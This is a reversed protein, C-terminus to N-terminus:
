RSTRSKRRSRRYPPLAKHPKRKEQARKELELRWRAPRPDEPWRESLADLLKFIRPLVHKKFWFSPLEREVLPKWERELLDLIEPDPWRLATQLADASASVWREKLMRELFGFIRSDATEALEPLIWKAEEYGIREAIYKKQRLTASPLFGTNPREPGYLALLLSNIRRSLAPSSERFLPRSRFPLRDTQLLLRSIRRDLARGLVFARSLAKELPPLIAAPNRATKLVLYSDLLKKLEPDRNQAWALLKGWERVRELPPFELGKRKSLLRVIEFFRDVSPALFGGERCWANENRKIGLAYALHRALFFTTNEGFRAYCEELFRANESHTELLKRIIRGSLGTKDGKYEEPLYHYGGGLAARNKYLPVGWSIEYPVYPNFPPIFALSNLFLAHDFRYVKGGSSSVTEIYFNKLLELAEGYSVRLPNPIRKGNLFVTKPKPAVRVSAIPEGAPPHAKWYDKFPGHLYAESVLCARRAPGPVLFLIWGLLSLTLLRPFLGIRWGSHQLWSKRSRTLHLLFSGAFPFLLSLAFAATSVSKRRRTIRIEIWTLALGFAILLSWAFPIYLSRPIGYLFANLFHIMNEPAELRISLLAAGLFFLFWAGRVGNGLTGPVRHTLRLWFLFLLLDAILLVILSSLAAAEPIGHAVIGPFFYFLVVAGMVLIRSEKERLLSWWTLTGSLFAFLAAGTAFLISMASLDLPFDPPLRRLIFFASLLLSGVFVRTLAGLFISRLGGLAGDGGRRHRTLYYHSSSWAQVILALQVIIWLNLLFALREKSDRPAPLLIAISFAAVAFFSAVPSRKGKEIYDQGSLWMLPRVPAATKERARGLGTRMLPYAACVAFVSAVAFWGTMDLKEWFFTFRGSQDVGAPGILHAIVILPIGMPWKRDSLFRCGSHWLLVFPLLSIHWSNLIANLEPAANRPALLRFWVLDTKTFRIITLVLFAGACLALSVIWTTRKFERWRPRTHLFICTAEGKEERFALATLVAFIMLAVMRMGLLPWSGILAFLFFGLVYGIATVPEAAGTYAILRRKAPSM